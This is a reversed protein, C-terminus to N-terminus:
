LWCSVRLLTWRLCQREKPQFANERDQDYKDLAFYYM